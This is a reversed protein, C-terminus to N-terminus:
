ELFPSVCGFSLPTASTLALKKHKLIGRTLMVDRRGYEGNEVSSGSSKGEFLEEITSV